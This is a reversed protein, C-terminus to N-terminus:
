GITLKQQALKAAATSLMEDADRPSRLQTFAQVLDDKCLLIVRLQNLRAEDVAVQARPLACVLFASVDIAQGNAELATLLANRRDVLKGLKNQFDAIKLTCEVLALKGGATAVILDPAQSEVQVAPSFGLLFLM